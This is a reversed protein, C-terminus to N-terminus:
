KMRKISLAVLLVLFICAIERVLTRGWEVPIGSSLLLLTIAGTIVVSM